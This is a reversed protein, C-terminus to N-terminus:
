RLHNRRAAKEAKIERAVPSLSYDKIQVFNSCPAASPASGTFQVAEGQTGYGLYGASVYYADTLIFADYVSDYFSIQSWGKQWTYIEEVYIAGYSGYSLGIPSKAVMCNGSDDVMDITIDFDQKFPQKLLYQSDSVKEVTVPLSSTGFLNAFDSNIYYVASGGAPATFTASTSASARFVESLATGEDDLYFAAFDVATGKSLNYESVEDNGYYAFYTDLEDLFSINDEVSYGAVMDVFDKILAADDTPLSGKPGSVCVWRKGGTLDNSEVSM